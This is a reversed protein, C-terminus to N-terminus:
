QAIIPEVHVKGFGVSVANGPKVASRVNPYFTFPVSGQKMGMQHHNRSGMKTPSLTLGSDVATLIPENAPDHLLTMAKEMDIIKYRFDVIGGVATVAIQKIRLGYQAELQDNSIYSVPTIAATPPPVLMLRHQYYYWGGVILFTGIALVTLTHMLYRIGLWALMNGTSQPKHPFPPTDVASIPLATSSSPMFTQKKM